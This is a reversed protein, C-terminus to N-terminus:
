VPSLKTQQPLEEEVGLRRSEDIGDLIQQAELKRLVTTITEVLKAADDDTLTM